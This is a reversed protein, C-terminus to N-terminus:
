MWTAMEAHIQNQLSMTPESSAVQTLASVLDKERIKGEELELMLSEIQHSVVNALPIAEPFKARLLVMLKNMEENNYKVFPKHHSCHRSLFKELVASKTKEQQHETVQMKLTLLSERSECLDSELTKKVATLENLATELKKERSSSELLDLQCARLQKELSQVDGSLQELQKFSRGLMRESVIYNRRKKQLECCEKSLTEYKDSCSKLM